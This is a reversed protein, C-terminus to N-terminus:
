GVQHMKMKTMEMISVDIEIDGYINYIFYVGGNEYIDSGNLEKVSQVCYGDDFLWHIDYM